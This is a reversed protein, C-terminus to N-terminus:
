CVIETSNENYWDYKKNNILEGKHFKRHFTTKPINSYEVAEKMSNFIKDDTICIVKKSLSKSIKDKTHQPTEYGIRAKRRTEKLEETYKNLGSNFAHKMNESNTVWELNEVHNNSKDGNKHNVCCKNEDNDLFHLAVLRHVNFRKASGKNSLFVGLYKGKSQKLIRNTKDNRVNGFSSVSYNKYNHIPKWDEALLKNNEEM